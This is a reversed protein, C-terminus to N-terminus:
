GGVVDGFVLCREMAEMNGDLEANFAEHNVLVRRQDDVLDVLVPGAGALLHISVTSFDPLKFSLEVANLKM